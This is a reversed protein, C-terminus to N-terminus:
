TKRKGLLLVATGSAVMGVSLWVPLEIRDKEKVQFKLPGLDADHTEKTYNFGGLVLGLVGLIILVLGAITKANKM